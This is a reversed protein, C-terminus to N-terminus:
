RKIQTEGKINISFHGLLHYCFYMILTYSHFSQNLVFLLFSSTYVRGCDNMRVNIYSKLRTGEVTFIIVEEGRQGWYQPPNLKSSM